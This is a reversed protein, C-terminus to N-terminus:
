GKEHNCSEMSGVDRNADDEKNDNGALDPPSIEVGFFTPKEGASFAMVLDDFDGTEVPMEDIQDPYEDKSKEIQPSTLV